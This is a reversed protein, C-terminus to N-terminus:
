KFSKVIDKARKKLLVVNAFDLIAYIMLFLAVLQTIYFQTFRVFILLIGVVTILLGSGLLVTWSSEDVSKLWLANSIKLIGTILLWLGFMVSIANSLSLPNFIILLGFCLSLISYILSYNFWRVMGKLSADYFSVIASFILVISFVIECIRLGADPKLLFFLGILFVIIDFIVNRALYFNFIGAIQKPLSNKSEVSKKM